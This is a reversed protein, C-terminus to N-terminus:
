RGARGETATKTQHCSRCLSQLNSPDDTGGHAKALIHDVDTATVYRGQAKCSQCLYSDRQLIQTRLRRWASGYGRQSATRGKQSKNWGYRQHAHADCFGKDARGVIAACGIARCPTKPM